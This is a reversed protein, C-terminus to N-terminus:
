HRYRNLEARSEFRHMRCESIPLRKTRRSLLQGKVATVDSSVCPFQVTVSLYGFDWM